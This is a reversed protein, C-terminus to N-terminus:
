RRAEAPNLSAMMLRGATRPLRSAARTLRRQWRRELGVAAFVLLWPLLQARQRYILGVNSFTLSYLVGFGILMILLPLIDSFRNRLAYGLGPIVAVFVLWWWYLMEPAVLLMRISGGVLQWPFPALMLHAAGVALMLGFGGPTRVDLTSEFGSGTTQATYSRVRQLNDLDWHAYQSEHHALLGTTVFFLVLLVAGLKPGVNFRDQGSVPVISSAILAAAALYAAYFRFPVLLIICVLTLFLHSLSFRSQRLRVCGYVAMTEFLIVVPEKVTQASWTAVSPFVCLWIGVRRAVKNSFLSAATRYAFIIALAGCFGNIVAAPLRSPEIFHYLLALFYWYGKNSSLFASAILEPVEALGVGEDVWRQHLGVGTLWGSGDEDKIVQVLGFGYIALSMLFRISYAALFLGIQFRLTARHARTIGLLACGVSGLTLFIATGSALGLEEM